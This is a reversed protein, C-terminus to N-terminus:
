RLYAHQRAEEKVKFDADDKRAQAWVINFQDWDSSMWDCFQRAVDMELMWAFHMRNFLYTAMPFQEPFARAVVTRVNLKRHQIYTSDPGFEYLNLAQEEPPVPWPNRDLEGVYLWGDATRVSHNAHPVGALLAAKTDLDFDVM